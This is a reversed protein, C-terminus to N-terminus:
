MKLSVTRRDQKWIMLAKCLDSMATTQTSM